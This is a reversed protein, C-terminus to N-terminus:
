TGGAGSAPLFPKWQGDAPDLIENPRYKAKYELSRCGEVYLGLYVYELGRERASEIISLVNWVGLSRDRVAPDYFFYIASLAGPVADVYGVGVLRDDLFYCWEEVPFPNEVFSEAYNYPSEPGKEPWGKFDSQFEHFRDYLRLKSRTVEPEGIRLTVQGLNQRAVRKQTASPRFKAVEVRIPTCATCSPCAPRFLAFGFRRWGQNMLDLYEAPELNGVIEYRLSWKRDPLYGCPSPAAQFTQLSIM